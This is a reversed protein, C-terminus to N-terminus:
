HVAPASHPRARELGEAVQKLGQQVAIQHLRTLEALVAENRIGRGWAALTRGRAILFDSWPLPQDRTYAELKAAYRETEDWDGIALSQEIASQAFWFHNHAVCGSDLIREAEELIKRSEARDETLAAKTALV